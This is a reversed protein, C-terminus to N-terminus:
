TRGKKRIARKVMELLKKHHDEDVFEAGSNRYDAWTQGSIDSPPKLCGEKKIPLVRVGWTLAVGMELMVNPNLNSTDFIAIDASIIGRAIENFLHEGYGGMLSRFSLEVSESGPLNKYQEIAQAFGSELNEKLHQTVYHESVFQYGFVVYLKNSESKRGTVFEWDEDTFGYPSGVPTPARTIMSVIGEKQEEKKLREFEYRGRSTIGVQGFIFPATGLWRVWEALGNEVLISVADNVQAPSLGIIKTLHEGSVLARGMQDTNLDALEKLIISANEEITQAM